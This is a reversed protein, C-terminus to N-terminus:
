NSDPHDDDTKGSRLALKKKADSILKHVLSTKMGKRVAIEEITFNQQHLNLAESERKTLTIYSHMNKLEVSEGVDQRPNDRELWRVRPLSMLIKRSTTQTETSRSPTAAVIYTSVKEIKMAGM